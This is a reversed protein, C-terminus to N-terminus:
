ENEYANESELYISINIETNSTFLTVNGFTLHTFYFHHSIFKTPVPWRIPLCCNDLYSATFINGRKKQYNKQSFYQPCLFIIQFLLIWVSYANRVLVSAIFHICSLFHSCIFSSDYLIIDFIIINVVGSILTFLLQCVQTAVTSQIVNTVTAAAM